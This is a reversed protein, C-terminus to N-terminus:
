HPGVAKYITPSPLPNSESPSVILKRVKRNRVSYNGRKLGRKSLIYELAVNGIISIDVVCELFVVIIYSYIM